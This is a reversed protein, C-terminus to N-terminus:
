QVTHINTNISSTLEEGGVFDEKADLIQAEAETCISGVLEAIVGRPGQLNITITASAFNPNGHGTCPEPQPEPRGPEGFDEEEGGDAPEVADTSFLAKGLDSFVDGFPDGHQKAAGEEFAKQEAIQKGVKYIIEDTKERGLVLDSILILSQLSSVKNSHLISM